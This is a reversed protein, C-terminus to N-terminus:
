EDSHEKEGSDLPALECAMRGAEIQEKRFDVEILESKWFVMNDNYVSIEIKVQENESDM